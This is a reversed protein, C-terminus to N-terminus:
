SSSARGRGNPHPDLILGHTALYEALQQGMYTVANGDGDTFSVGDRPNAMEIVGLFRGALEVPACVVSKCASGAAAWRANRLLESAPDNVIVASRRAMAGAVLPDRESTRHGVVADAKRGAASVVVFERADIDYFHIMGLRSPLKELALALVFDAAALSDAMFHLGHMAEFLETILDDGHLRIGPASPQRAPPSSSTTSPVAAPVSAAHGPPAHAPLVPGVSASDSAAAVPGSAERLNDVWPPGDRGAARADQAALAEVVDAPARTEASPVHEAIDPRANSVMERDAVMPGHLVARAALEFASDEDAAPAAPAAPAAAAIATSDDATSAAADDPLSPAKPGAAAPEDRGAGATRAGPETVVEAAGSREAGDAVSGAVAASSTASASQAEDGTAASPELADWANLAAVDLPDETPRPVRAHPAAANASAALPETAPQAARPEGGAAPESMLAAMVTPHVRVTPMASSVPGDTTPRAASPVAIPVSPTYRGSQESGDARGRPPVTAPPPDPRPVRPREPVEERARGSPLAPKAAADPAASSAMQVASSEGSGARAQDAEPGVVSAPSEASAVGALPAAEVAAPNVASDSPGPTAALPAPIPVSLPPPPEVPSAAHNPETAYLFSPPPPIAAPAPVAAPPPIAAPAPVAAPPPVVAAPPEPAAAESRAAVSDDALDVQLPFADSAESEDVLAARLPLSEGSRAATRRPAPETPGVAMAAATAPSPASPHAALPSSPTIGAAARRAVDARSPEPAPVSGASTPGPSDWPIAVPQSFGAAATVSPWPTSPYQTAAPPAASSSPPSISPADGLRRVVPEASRWDKWTLSALPPRQPKREFYYDFIAINVLKGTPMQAIGSRVYEFVGRILAAAMEVSTGEPVVWASERYTLPSLETPDEDRRYLLQPSPLQFM